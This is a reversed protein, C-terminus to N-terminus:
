PRSVLEEWPGGPTLYSRVDHATSEEDDEPETERRASPRERLALAVLVSVVQRLRAHAGRLDQAEGAVRAAHVDCAGRHAEQRRRAGHEAHQLHGGVPALHRAHGADRAGGARRDREGPAVGRHADRARREAALRDAGRADVAAARGGALRRRLGAGARRRHLDAAAVVALRGGIRMWHYPWDANARAPRTNM